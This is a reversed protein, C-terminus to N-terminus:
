TRIHSPTRTEKFIHRYKKLVEWFKKKEEIEDDTICYKEEFEDYERLNSFEEYKEPHDNAFDQSDINILEENPEM